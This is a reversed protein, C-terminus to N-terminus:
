QFRVIMNKRPSYLGEASICDTYEVAAALQAIIM